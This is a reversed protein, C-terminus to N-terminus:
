REIGLRDLLKLMEEKKEAECHHIPHFFGKGGVQAIVKEITEPWSWQLLVQKGASFIKDYMKIYEDHDADPSGSGPFWQIANLDKLSLLQDLHAIQGTGDLHYTTHGLHACHAEMSPMVFEGFMAPSIMYAFDCQTNYATKESYVESWDSIAGNEGKC